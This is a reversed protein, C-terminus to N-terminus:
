RTPRAAAPRGDRRGQAHVQEFEKEEAISVVEKALSIIDEGGWMVAM